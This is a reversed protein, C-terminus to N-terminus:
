GKSRSCQGVLDSHRVLAQFPAKSSLCSESVYTGEASLGQHQEVTTRRSPMACIFYIALPGPQYGRRGRRSRKGDSDHVVRAWYVAAIGEPICRTIARKGVEAQAELEEFDTRESKKAKYSILRTLAQLFSAALCSQPSQRWGAAAWRGRSM